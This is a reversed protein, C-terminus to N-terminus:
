GAPTATCSTGIISEALKMQTAHEDPKMLRDPKRDGDSDIRGNPSAKLIALNARAQTCQANEPQAPKAAVPAPAVMGRETYKGSAPPSSTYHTRGSADKWQYVKQQAVTPGALLCGATLLGLATFLSRNM